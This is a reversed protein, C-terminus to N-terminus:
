LGSNNFGQNGQNGQQSSYGYQTVPSQPPPIQTYEQPKKKLFHIILIIVVVIIIAIVGIIIWLTLNSEKYECDDTETKKNDSTSNCYKKDACIRAKTGEKSCATWNGCLWNSTCLPTPPSCAQSDTRKLMSSNCARTDTCNRTQLGNKCTTWATCNWNPTCNGATSFTERVASNTLGNVIFFSNNISCSIGSYSDPCDLLIESSGTCNATIEGISSIEANRICIETSDTLKQVMLKKSAPIGKILIYGRSASSSQREIYIRDLDLAQSFNWDFEVATYNEAKLEVKQVGSMTRTLNTSSNIYAILSSISTLNTLNGMVGNSDFDCTLTLNAPPAQSCSNSDTFYQIKKDNTTCTTNHATWSPTCSSSPYLSEKGYMLESYSHNLSIKGQTLIKHSSNSFNNQYSYIQEGYLTDASLSNPADKFISDLSINAEQSSLIAGRTQTYASFFSSNQSPLKDHIDTWNTISTLANKYSQTFNGQWSYILTSYGNAGGPGAPEGWRMMVSSTDGIKYAFYAACQGDILYSTNYFIITIGTSSETKFISTWANAVQANSCDTPIAPTFIANTLSITLLFIFFVLSVIIVRKKM